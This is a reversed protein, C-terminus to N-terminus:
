TKILIHPCRILKKNNIKNLMRDILIDKRNLVTYRFRKLEKWSHYYFHNTMASVGNKQFLKRNNEKVAQIKNQPYIPSDCIHIESNLKLYRMLRNVLAPLNDFYQLSNALIIADFSNYEFIDDFIDGYFFKIRKNNTFVRSAQELEALNIDLAYVYNLTDTSLKNGLWCNGAGIELILKNKRKSFVKALRKYSAAKLKWDEFLPKSNELFPLKKLEEDSYISNTKQLYLLYNKQFGELAKPEGLYIINDQEVSSIKTKNSVM